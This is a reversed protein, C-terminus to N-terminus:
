SKQLRNEKGTISTICDSIYANDVYIGIYTGNERVMGESTFTLTSWDLTGRVYDANNYFVIECFISPSLGKAITEKICKGIDGELM